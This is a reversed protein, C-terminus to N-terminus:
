LVITLIVVNDRDVENESFGLCFWFISVQNAVFHWHFLQLVTASGRRHSIKRRFQGNKESGKAHHTGALNAAATTAAAAATTRTTTTATTATVHTELTPTPPSQLALLTIVPEERRTENEEEPTENQKSRNSGKITPESKRGSHM